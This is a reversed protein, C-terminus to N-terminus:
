ASAVKLRYVYHGSYGGAREIVGKAAFSRLLSNAVSPPAPLKSAYDYVTIAKMGALVEAAHKEDVRIAGVAQLKEQRGGAAKGEKKPEKKKDAASQAKETQAITRKKGGGM